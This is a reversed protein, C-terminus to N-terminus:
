DLGLTHKNDPELRDLTRRMKTNSILRKDEEKFGFIVDLKNLMKEVDVREEIIKAENKIGMINYTLARSLEGMEQICKDIMDIAGYKEITKRHIERENLIM